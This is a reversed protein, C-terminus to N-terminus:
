EPSVNYKANLLDLLEASISRITTSINEPLSQNSYTIQNQKQNYSFIEFMDISITPTKNLYVLFHGPKTARVAIYYNVPALLIDNIEGPQNIGAKYPYLYLSEPLITFSKQSKKQLYFDLWNEEAYLIFSIVNESQYSKTDVSLKNFTVSETKKNPDNMIIIFDVGEYKNDNEVAFLTESTPNNQITQTLHIMYSNLEDQIEDLERQTKKKDLVYGLGMMYKNKNM